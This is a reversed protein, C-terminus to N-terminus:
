HRTDRAVEYADAWDDIDVSDGSHVIAMWMGAADDVAMEDQDQLARRAADRLMVRMSVTAVARDTRRAALLVDLDHVEAVSVRWPKRLGHRTLRGESLWRRITGPPVHALHAADSISVQDNM